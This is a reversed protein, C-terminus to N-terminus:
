VAKAPRMGNAAAIAAHVKLRSPFLERGNPKRVIRASMRARMLCTM